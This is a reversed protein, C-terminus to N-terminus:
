AAPAAPSKYPPTPTQPATAASKKFADYLSAYGAHQVCSKDLGFAALAAVLGKDNRVSDLDIDDPDLLWANRVRGDQARALMDALAWAPQLHDIGQALKDLGPAVREFWKATRMTITFGELAYSASGVAVAVEITNPIQTTWGAERLVDVGVKVAQAFVRRLAAEPNAQRNRVLNMHVDSRGGLSKILGAKRWSALYSSCIASKWGFLVTLDGGTFVEPLNALRTTASTYIRQSM